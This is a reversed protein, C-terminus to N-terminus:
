PFLKLNKKEVMTFGVLCKADGQGTQSLPEITMKKHNLARQLTAVHEETLVRSGCSTGGWRYEDLTNNVNKVFMRGHYQLYTDASTTNVALGVVSGVLGTDDASAAGACSMLAFCTLLRITRRM